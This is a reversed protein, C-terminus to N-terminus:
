RHPAHRLAQELAVAHADDGRLVAELGDRHQLVLHRVHDQEVDLHRAHVAVLDGRVHAIVRAQLVARDHHDGRTDALLVAPPSMLPSCASGPRSTGSSSSRRSTGRAQTASTVPKWGSCSIGPAGGQYRPMAAQFPRPMGTIENAPAQPLRMGTIPPRVRMTMKAQRPWFSGAPCKPMAVCPKGCSTRTLGCTIAGSVERIKGSREGTSHWTRM